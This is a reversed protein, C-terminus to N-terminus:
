VETAVICDVDVFTPNYVALSGLWLQVELPEWRPLTVSLRYRTAKDTNDEDSDPDPDLPPATVQICEELADPSIDLGYLKSIHIELSDEETITDDAVNTDSSHTDSGSQSQSVDLDRKQDQTCLFPAPNCLARM